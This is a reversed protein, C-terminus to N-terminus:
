TELCNPCSIYSDMEKKIVMSTGNRYKKGFKLTYKRILAYMDPEGLADNNM